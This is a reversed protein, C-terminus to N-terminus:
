APDHSEEHILAQRWLRFLPLPLREPDDTFGLIASQFAMGQISALFLRAAAAVDLDPRTEGRRAAAEILSRLRGECVRILERIGQRLAPYAHHCTDSFVLRPMAPYRTYLRTYDNFIRELEVWPADSKVQFVEDLHNKFWSLVAAWIAEKNPFHRFVAGQSLGVRETILGTTVAEVGAEAALALVAEVIEKQRDESSRRLTQPPIDRALM